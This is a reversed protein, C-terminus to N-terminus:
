SLQAKFLQGWFLLQAPVNHMEKGNEAFSCRTFHGFVYSQSYFHRVPIRKLSPFRGRVQFM